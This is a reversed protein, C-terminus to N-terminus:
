KKKTYLISFSFNNKSIHGLKALSFLHSLSIKKINKKPPHTILSSSWCNGVSYQQRELM